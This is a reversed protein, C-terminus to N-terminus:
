VFSINMFPLLLCSCWHTFTFSEMNLRHFRIPAYLNLRKVEGSNPPSHHVDREPRKGGPLFGFVWPVSQVHPQTHGMAPRSTTFFLFERVEAPIKKQRDPTKEGKIWKQVTQIREDKM